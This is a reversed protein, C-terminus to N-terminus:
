DGCGRAIFWKFANTTCGNVQQCHASCGEYPTHHSTFSVDDCRTCQATENCAALDKINKHCAAISRVCWRDFTIHVTIHLIRRVSSHIELVHQACQLRECRYSQSPM